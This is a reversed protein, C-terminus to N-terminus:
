QPTIWYIDNTNRLEQIAQWIELYASTNQSIIPFEDGKDNEIYGDSLTPLVKSKAPITNLNYIYQKQDNLKYFKFAFTVAGQQATVREDIMWPILIEDTQKYTVADFYPIIYVHSNLDNQDKAHNYFQILGTTETLDMNDYYRNMKFYITEAYKDYLISLYEPAEVERTNLDIKYIKEQNPLLIAHKPKNNNQIQFLYEKYQEPTTGWM